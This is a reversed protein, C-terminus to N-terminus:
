HLRKCRYYQNTYNYVITCDVTCVFDFKTMKTPSICYCWFKISDQEPLASMRCPRSSTVKSSCCTSRCISLSRCFCCRSRCLFSCSSCCDLRSLSSLRWPALVSQSFDPLVDQCIYLTKVLAPRYILIILSICYPFFISYEVIIEHNDQYIASVHYSGLYQRNHFLSWSENVLFISSQLHIAKFWNLFNVLRHGFLQREHVHVLLRAHALRWGLFLDFKICWATRWCPRRIACVSRSIWPLWTCWAHLRDDHAQVVFPFTWPSVMVCLLTFLHMSLHINIETAISTAMNSSLMVDCSFARSQKDSPKRLFVAFRAMQIFAAM